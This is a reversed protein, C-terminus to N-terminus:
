AVWEPKPKQMYSEYSPGYTKHQQQKTTRKPPRASEYGSSKVRVLRRFLMENEHDIRQHVVAKKHMKGKFQSDLGAVNPNASFTFMPPLRAPPKKEMEPIRSRGPCSSNPSHHKASPVIAPAEAIITEHKLQCNLKTAARLLEEVTQDDLQDVNFLDM